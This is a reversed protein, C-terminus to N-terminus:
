HTWQFWSFLRDLARVSINTVSIKYTNFITQDSIEIARDGFPCLRCVLRNQGHHHQQRRGYRKGRHHTAQETVARPTRLSAYPIPTRPHRGRLMEPTRTAPADKVASKRWASAQLMTSRNTCNKRWYHARYSTASRFVAM